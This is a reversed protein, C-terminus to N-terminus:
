IAHDTIQVYAELHPARLVSYGWAHLNGTRESVECSVSLWISERATWLKRIAVVDGQRVRVRRASLVAAPLTAFLKKYAAADSITRLHRQSTEFAQVM